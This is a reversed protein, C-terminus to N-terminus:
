AADPTSAGENEIGLRFKQERHWSIGSVGPLECIAEHILRLAAANVGAQRRGLLSGLLGRSRELTGIWVGPALAGGPRYGLVFCHEQGQVEFPLFWGFDEQAPKDSAKVGRGRLIGVLQQLLDDGFCSPNLFYSRPTTTNFASTAFVVTTRPTNM